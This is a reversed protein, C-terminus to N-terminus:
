KPKTKNIKIKLGLSTSQITKIKDTSIYNYVNQIVFNVPKNNFLIISSSGWINLDKIDNVNPQFYYEFAFAVNTYELKLKIRFSNRLISELETNTYKRYEHLIAYSVATSLHKNIKFHQGVGVGILNDSSISRIYSSNYQHVIFLSLKEDHFGIDDKLTLENGTMKQGTYSLNYYPNFDCYYNNKVFHNNCNVVLSPQDGVKTTNFSGTVNDDLNMKFQGNTYLPLAVLLIIILKKM